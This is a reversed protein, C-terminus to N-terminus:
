RASHATAQASWAPTPFSVGGGTRKHANSHRTGCPQNRLGTLLYVPMGDVRFTDYATGRTALAVIEHPKPVRVYAPALEHDPLMDIDTFVVHSLRDGYTRKLHAFGVNKLAGLNFKQEGVRRYCEECTWRETGDAHRGKRLGGVARGVDGDVLAINRRVGAPLRLLWSKDQTARQLLEHLERPHVALGSAAGFAQKWWAGFAEREEPVEQQEAVVIVRRWTKPFLTEFYSCFNALQETRTGGAAPDSDRFGVVIGVVPSTPGTNPKPAPVLTYPRTSSHVMQKALARVVGEMYDYLFSSTPGVRLYHGGGTDSRGFLWRKTNTVLAEGVHDHTVLWQMLEGLEAMNHITVHTYGVRQIGAASLHSPFPTTSLHPRIDTDWHLPVLFPETWLRHGDRTPLLVLSGASLEHVFRDARTQGDLCLNYKYRTRAQHDMYFSKGVLGLASKVAAPQVTRLGPETASNARRTLKPRRNLSTLHVDFLHAYKPDQAIRQAQMRLNTDSTIGRGTASGRFVAKPVTKDSWDVWHASANTKNGAVNANSDRRAEVYATDCRELFRVQEFHEIDDATPLPVDYYGDKGTHSLVPMLGGRVQLQVRNEATEVDPYPQLVTTVGISPDHNARLVPYDRPQLVCEFDPLGKRHAVLTSFLHRFHQVHPNDFYQAVNFFHNNALWRRRNPESRVLDEPRSGRPPHASAWRAACSHELRLLRELTSRYERQMRPPFLSSDQPDSRELLDDWVQLKKEAERMAALERKDAHSQPSEADFLLTYYDSTFNRRVFPLFTDLRNSRIRVFIGKQLKQFMYRLTNATTEPSLGIYPTTADLYRAQVHQMVQKVRPRLGASPVFGKTPTRMRTYSTYVAHYWLERWDAATYLEQDYGVASPSNRTRHWTDIPIRAYRPNTTFFSANPAGLGTTPNYPIRYQRQQLQHLADAAETCSQHSTYAAPPNMQM